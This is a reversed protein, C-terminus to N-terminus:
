VRIKNKYLETHTYLETLFFGFIDQMNATLAALMDKSRQGPVNRCYFNTGNYRESLRRVIKSFIVYFFIQAILM